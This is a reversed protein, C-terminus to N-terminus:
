RCHPSSRPHQRPFPFPVSRGPSVLFPVWHLCDKWPWSRRGPYSQYPLAISPWSGPWLAQPGSDAGCVPTGLFASPRVLISFDHGKLVKCGPAEALHKPLHRLLSSALFVKAELGSQACIPLVTVWRRQAEDTFHSVSVAFGSAM